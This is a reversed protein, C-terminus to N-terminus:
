EKTRKAAVRAAAERKKRNILLMLDAIQKGAKTAEKDPFILKHRNMYLLEKGSVLLLNDLDSNSRDGDAFLIFHGEPIKGYAKEWIIHHKPKWVDPYAIKVEVYEKNMRETGITANQACKRGNYFKYYKCTREIQTENRDLGFRRNFLKTMEAYSRGKITRKLYRIQEPTYYRAKCFRGNKLKYEALIGRIQNCSLELGFHRNFLRRTEKYSRGPLTKRIFETEEPTYRHIAV